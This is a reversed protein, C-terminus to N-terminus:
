PNSLKCTGTNWNLCKPVQSEIAEQLLCIWEQHLWQKRSREPINIFRVFFILCRQLYAFWCFCSHWQVEMNDVAEWVLHGDHPKSASIWTYPTALRDRSETVWSAIHLVQYNWPSHNDASHISMRFSHLHFGSSDGTMARWVPCVPIPQWHHLRHGFLQTWPRLNLETQWFNTSNIRTQHM